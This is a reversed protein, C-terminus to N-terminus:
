GSFLLLNEQKRAKIVSITRKIQVDDIAQKMQISTSPVMLEKALYAPRLTSRNITTKIKNDAIPKM